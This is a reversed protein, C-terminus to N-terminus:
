LGVLIFVVALPVGASVLLLLLRAQRQRAVPEVTSLARRMQWTVAVVYLVFLASLVPIM